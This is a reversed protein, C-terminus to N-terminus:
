EQSIGRKNKRQDPKNLVKEDLDLALAQMNVDVAEASRLELRQGHSRVQLDESSLSLRITPGSGAPIAEGMPSFTLVRLTEGDQYFHTEFSGPIGVPEIGTVVWPSPVNFEFSLGLIEHTANELSVEATKHQGGWLRTGTVNVVASGQLERRIDTPSEAFNGEATNLQGGPSTQGVGASSAAGNTVACGTTLVGGGECFIGAGCDTMPVVLNCEVLCGLDFIDVVDDCLGMAGLVDAECTWSMGTTDHVQPILNLLDFLTCIGNVCDVDGQDGECTCPELMQIGPGETTPVMGLFEDAVVSSHAFLDIQTLCNVCLDVNGVFSVTALPQSVAPSAPITAGLVDPLMVIKVDGNLQEQLTCTFNM